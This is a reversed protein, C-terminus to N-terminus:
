LRLMAALSCCVVKATEFNGSSVSDLHEFCNTKRRFVLLSWHSGGTQKPNDNDNVPLLLLAKDGFGLDSCVQEIVAADGFKFLESVNPSVICVQLCTMSINDVSFLVPIIQESGLINGIIFM